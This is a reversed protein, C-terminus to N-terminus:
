GTSGARLTATYQERLRQSYLRVRRPILFLDFIFAGIWVVMVLAGLLAMGGGAAGTGEATLAGSIMLWLAVGGGLLEFLGLVMKGLYFNHVGIGGLFFWLVYALAVSKKENAVKAEILLLQDTTLGRHEVVVHEVIRRTVSNAESLEGNRLSGTPEPTLRSLEFSDSAKPGASVPPGITPERQDM